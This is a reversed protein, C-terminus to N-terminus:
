ISQGQKVKNKRGWNHIHLKSAAILTTWSHQFHCTKAFDLSAPDAFLSPQSNYTEYRSISIHYKKSGWIECDVMQHDTSRSEFKLSSGFFILFVKLPLVQWECSKLVAESPRLKTAKLLQHRQNPAKKQGHLIPHRTKIYAFSLFTGFSRWRTIFPSEPFSDNWSELLHHNSSDPHFLSVWFAWKNLPSM